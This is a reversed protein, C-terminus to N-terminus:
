WNVPLNRQYIPLLWSGRHKQDSQIWITWNEVILFCYEPFKEQRERKPVVETLM